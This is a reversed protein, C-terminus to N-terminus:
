IIIYIGIFTLWLKYNEAILRKGFGHLIKSIAYVIGLRISAIFSM